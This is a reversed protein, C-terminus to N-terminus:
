KARKSAGREQETQAPPTGRRLMNKLACLITVQDTSSPNRQSIHLQRMTPVNGTVREEHRNVREEHRNQIIM